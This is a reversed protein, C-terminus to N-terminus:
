QINWDLIDADEQFRYTCAVTYTKSISSKDVRGMIRRGMPISGM